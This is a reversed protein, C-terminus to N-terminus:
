VKETEGDVMKPGMEQRVISLRLPVLTPANVNRPHLERQLRIILRESLWQSETKGSMLPSRIGLWSWPQVIGDDDIDHALNFLEPSGDPKKPPKIPPMPPCHIEKNDEDLGLLKLYYCWEDYSYKKSTSKEADMLLGRIERMLMFNYFQRDRKDVDQVSMAAREASRFDSCQLRKMLVEHKSHERDDDFHTTLYSPSVLKRHTHAITTKPLTILAFVYDTFDRVGKVVTDGLDGILVTLAPVALLSWFVFFPRGSNSQAELDGYGITLLVIYSFYLGEFYSWDQARETQQFVAAGAFWLVCFAGLSVGLSSWARGSDANEIIDRMAYFEQRRRQIEPQDKSANFYRRKYWEIYYYGKEFNMTKLVAERKREIARASLKEASAELVLSNIANVVLGLAIIGGVAYPFILSRGLHTTPVYYDGIGITLLTFDSWYVANLFSWGEVQSYIGAGAILYIMFIVTQVMLTRQSSTLQFDKEYKGAYAGMVTCVMLISIIAYM